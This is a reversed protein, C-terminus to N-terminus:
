ALNDLAAYFSVVIAVPSWACQVRGNGLEDVQAQNFRTFGASALTGDNHVVADNIRAEACTNCNWRGMREHQQRRNHPEGVPLSDGMLAVLSAIAPLILAFLLVYICV